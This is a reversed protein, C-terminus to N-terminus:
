PMDGICLQVNSNVNANYAWLLPTMLADPKLDFDVISKQKSYLVSTSLDFNTSPIINQEM